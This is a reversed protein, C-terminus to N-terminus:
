GGEGEEGRGEEESGGRDAVESPGGQRCTGGRVSSPTAPLSSQRHSLTNTGKFSPTSFSPGIGTSKQIWPPLASTPAALVAAYEGIYTM